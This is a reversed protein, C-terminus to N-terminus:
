KADNDGHLQRGHEVVEDLFRDYAENAMTMVEKVEGVPPGVNHRHAPKRATPQGVKRSSPAISARRRSKGTAASCPPWISQPRVGFPALVRALQTQSLPRPSQDGRIGRWECWPADPM